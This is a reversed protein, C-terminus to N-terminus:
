AMRRFGPHVEVLRQGELVHREYSVAYLPEIGSSCGAIISITGTPAVTTTTANRLPASGGEAWRSGPFNPFPGRREALVVSAALSEAELVAAIETGLALAPESDYAIGLEILLDAFGMVGLGIKRNARTARDIQALPYRNADIVN